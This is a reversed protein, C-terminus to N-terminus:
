GTITSGMDVYMKGGRDQLRVEFPQRMAEDSPVYQDANERNVEALPLRIEKPLERGALAERAAYALTHGIKVQQLAFTTHIQGRKIAEVAEKQGNISVIQPDFGGGKVTMAGLASTDNFTWMGDLGRERQRFRNAIERAGDPTIKTNTAEDVVDLGAEKAGADFGNNERVLIEALKPGKIAAVTGDEGVLGALVRAGDAAAQEVDSTVNTTVNKVQTTEQVIVPINRQRLRDIAPQIAQPVVPNTILVDIQQQQLTQIDAVQKGPDLNANTIRVTCGDRELEQKVVAGLVQFNPDPLPQAYGVVKGGECPNGGEASAAAPAADGGGGASEEEDDGCAAGFLALALMALLTALRSWTM